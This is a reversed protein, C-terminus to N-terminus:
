FNRWPSLSDPFSLDVITKFEQEDRAMDDRKMRIKQTHTNSHIDREQGRTQSPEVRWPLVAGSFM